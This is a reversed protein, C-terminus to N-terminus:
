LGFVLDTWGLKSAKYTMMFYKYLQAVLQAECGIPQENQPKM